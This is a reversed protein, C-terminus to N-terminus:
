NESVNWLCQSFKCVPFSVVFYYAEGKELVCGVPSDITKMAFTGASASGDFYCRESVSTELRPPTDCRSISIRVRDPDKDLQDWVLIAFDDDPEEPIVFPLAAYFDNFVTVYRTGSNRGWVDWIERYIEARRTQNVLVYPAKRGGPECALTERATSKASEFDNVFIKDDVGVLALMLLLSKM